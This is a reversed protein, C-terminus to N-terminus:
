AFLQPPEQLADPEVGSLSQDAEHPLAAVAAMVAIVAPAAALINSGCRNAASSHSCGTPCIPPCDQKDLTIEAVSTQEVLTVVDTRHAGDFVASLSGHDNAAATQIPAFHVGMALLAIAALVRICSRAFEM